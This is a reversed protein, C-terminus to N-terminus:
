LKIKKFNNDKITQYVGYKELILRDLIHMKDADEFNFLMQSIIPCEKIFIDRIAEAVLRIEKQSTNHLRSNLFTIWTRINANMYIKTTANEGLVFRACERAVGADILKKYLYLSDHKHKEVADNANLLDKDDYYDEM